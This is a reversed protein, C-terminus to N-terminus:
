IIRNGEDLHVGTTLPVVEGRNHVVAELRERDVVVLVRHGRLVRAYCRCAVSFERSPVDLLQLAHSNSLILLLDVFIAIYGPVVAIARSVVPATAVNVSVRSGQVGEIVVLTLPHDPHVIPESDLDADDGEIHTRLCRM